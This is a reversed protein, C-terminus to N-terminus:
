RVIVVKSSPGHAAGEERILYLGSGARRGDTARGDWAVRSGAGVTMYLRKVLRGHVDYVAFARAEAGNAAVALEVPLAGPTSVLRFAPAPQGVRAPFVRVEAFGRFMEGTALSGSVNLRNTGASLLPDLAIRSFRVTLNPLVVGASDRMASSTDAPITGNLRVTSLVIDSVSFNAALPQIVATISTGRSGLGLTTPNVSVTAPKVPPWEFRLARYTATGPDFTLKSIVTGDPAVETLAPTTAGWGILTNGNSFRQVSGFAPGFVDPTLRYQWVLTATKQAEDIAYEVARSFQPLRFNGNDFITIHGDPLRRVDHQHSFPIPDNVFTFQNNKGGMRWLIEGTTRSIKTVENMHRSSLIFNGGPDVDISNGHVYDVVATTLSHSVVDTIQFHDWSRWQFVVNRAIDMEQIILGIVIANSRGGVSTLDVIQPDYSMLVAHGNPLLLLDHNDTTYGNGCRFSDVVDYRANLAYFGKAAADFYTLRGDPHMKFDLGVGALKRYFFPTGNDELIMLYSPVPRSVAFHVDTLFLRGPTPTGYLETRIPPFDPPLSEALAATPREGSLAASPASQPQPNEDVDAPIPFDRLSEREPGAVTFTVEAPPILGRSDTALGSGLRYTVVEGSAFPTHPQFTLTRGDDSLRLRGEHLGSRSGSAQLLGGEGMSAPDVIGGPRIIINTEPLHGTSGPLPSLFELRPPPAGAGVGALLAM